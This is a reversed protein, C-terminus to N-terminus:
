YTWSQCIITFPSNITMLSNGVQRSSGWWSACDPWLLWKLLPWCVYIHVFFLKVKMEPERSTCFKEMWLASPQGDWLPLSRSLSPSPYYARTFVYFYACIVIFGVFNNINPAYFNSSLTPTAWRVHRDPLSLSIPLFASLSHSHSPSLTSRLDPQVLCIVRTYSECKM